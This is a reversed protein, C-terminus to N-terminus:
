KWPVARVFVQGRVLAIGVGIFLGILGISHLVELVPALGRQVSSILQSSSLLKVM